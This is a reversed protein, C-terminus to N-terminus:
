VNQLHRQQKWKRQERKQKAMSSTSSTNIVGLMSIGHPCFLVSLM